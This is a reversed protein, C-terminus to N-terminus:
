KLYIKFWQSLCLLGWLSRDFDNIKSLDKIIIEYDFIGLEFLPSDKITDAVFQKFTQDQLWENIPVPFGDVGSAAFSDLVANSYPYM